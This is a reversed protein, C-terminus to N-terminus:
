AVLVRAEAMASRGVEDTWTASITASRELRLHVVHYPNAATGNRLDAAFILVGDRRVELRAIMDRPPTTGDAHTLGTDMPHAILVGIEITEGPRATAPARIRPVAQLLASM